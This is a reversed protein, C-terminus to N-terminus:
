RQHGFALLRQMTQEAVGTLSEDRAELIALSVLLAWGRARQWTHESVAGCAAMVADRSETDAFLMWVAALDTARDGKATDGL